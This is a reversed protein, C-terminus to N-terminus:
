WPNEIHDIAGLGVQYQYTISCIHPDGISPQAPNSFNSYSKGSYLPLPIFSPKSYIAWGECSDFMYTSNQSVLVTRYVINGFSTHWDYTEYSTPWIYAFANPTIEASEGTAHVPTYVLLMILLVLMLKRIKM